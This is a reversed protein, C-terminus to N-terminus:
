YNDNQVMNPNALIEDNPIPLVFRYSNAPMTRWNEEADSSEREVARRNRKLDWFRMGEFAFERLREDLIEDMMQSESTYTQDPYGPIRAKRIKNLLFNSSDLKNTKACAEAVIFYMESIRCVKIDVVRAGRDSTYFKNVYRSGYQDEAIFADKRVDGAEYINSLKDSPSIYIFDSTTTWLSGVSSSLSNKIKFLIENPGEETDTWMNRFDDGSVLDKQHFEESNIVELAYKKAATLDGKYLAVRAQFAPINFRNLETETFSSSSLLVRADFLDKEIQAVSEGVTKRAPKALPNSELMMPIGKPDAASYNKCYAQVLGFNAVGRLAL